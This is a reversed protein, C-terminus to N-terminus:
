SSLPLTAHNYVILLNTFCIITDNKWDQHISYTHLIGHLCILCLSFKNKYNHLEYVNDNTGLQEHLGIDDTM